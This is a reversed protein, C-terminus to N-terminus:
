TFGASARLGEAVALYGPPDSRTPSPVYGRFRRCDSQEIAGLQAEDQAALEPIPGHQRPSEATRNGEALDEQNLLLIMSPVQALFGTIANHLTGDVEPIQAADRPYEPPLLGEQHLRDLMRQKEARRDAM